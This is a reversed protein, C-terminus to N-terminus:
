FGGRVARAYRNDGKPVTIVFAHGNVSWAHAPAAVRTTGTWYLDEQTNAPDLSPDVCPFSPCECHTSPCRFDMLVTQLEAVTPLRWGNAGAFGAGANLKALFDDFAPGTESIGGWFYVNDADHPDANNPTMDLNVKKEWVLGTLNDTVTQNGNDVFRSGICTSGVLSPRRAPNQFRTWKQFYTHRCIAFAKFPASTTGQSDRAVSLYVCSLYQKYAIIRAYDCNEQATPTALATTRWMLMTCASLIWAAKKM